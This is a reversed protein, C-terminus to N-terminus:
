TEELLALLAKKQKNIKRTVAGNRRPKKGLFDNVQKQALRVYWERDIADITLHNDNDVLVHAPLGTVKRYNGTDPDMMYLTGYDYCDTAYVRNVRQQEVLEGFQEHYANGCKSWTKAIFQFDLIEDSAYITEKLPTGNTLYAVIANSVIVANNNIKFAGGMLNTWAPFGMAAFDIDGNTLVGRVLYGGKTKLEGHVPVEIYNNVDKQIIQAIEDEELTFGTREQWEDLIATWTPRYCRDFSCMVGDTNINLVRLGPIEDLLHNALELLRLQGTICVSRAMLPDYLDNHKENTAGFTTNAVLKLANAVAKDGSRKAAIRRELMAKYTNASPINRSTYGNLTMLHPYYSAVDANVIARKETASERYSRPGGHIGGWGITTPCDGVTIELKKSWLEHDPITIDHIQDFFEVVERPIYKYLIDDPFVYDREDDHPQPTADLYAATLKANTMYLARAPNMGKEQGLTLKNSIYTKRIHYLIETADVDHKCYEIVELLEEETLPRDIDFSVSTEQIPMGLHGEIDKLGTGTQVDDMLDFQELYIGCDRLASIQWGPVGDVIITDSIEKIEQPTMDLLAAKLIYSDYHKNNYGCLVPREDMFAKLEDNDNHIVTYEGSNADKFVFLWNYAFVECDFIYLNDM